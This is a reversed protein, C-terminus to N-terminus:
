TTNTLPAEYGAFSDSQSAQLCLSNDGGDAIALV